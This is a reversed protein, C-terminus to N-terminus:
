GELETLTDMVASHEASPAKCLPIKEESHLPHLVASISRGSRLSRSVNGATPVVTKNLMLTM